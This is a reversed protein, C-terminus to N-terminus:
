TLSFDVAVRVFSLGPPPPPLAGSQKVLALAAQDLLHHGSSREIRVGRLGGQPELELELLVEGQRGQNRAAAPYRKRAALWRALGARYAAHAEGAPPTGSGGRGPSRSPADERTGRHPSAGRTGSGEGGSGPDDPAATAPQAPSGTPLPVLGGPMLPAPDAPTPSAPPVAPTPLGAPREPDGDTSEMLLLGVTRPPRPSALRQLGEQAGLSSVLLALGLSLATGLKGLRHSLRHLGDLRHGEWEPACGLGVDSAM